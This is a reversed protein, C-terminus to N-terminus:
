FDVKPPGQPSNAWSAVCYSTRYKWLINLIIGNSGFSSFKIWNAWRLVGTPIFVWKRPNKKIMRRQSIRLSFCFHHVSQFNKLFGRRVALYRNIKAFTIVDIVDGFDFRDTLPKMTAKDSLTILRSRIRRLHRQRSRGRTSSPDFITRDSRICNENHDHPLHLWPAPTGSPNVWPKLHSGRWGSSRDWWFAPVCVEYKM